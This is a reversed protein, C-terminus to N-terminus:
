KLSFRVRSLRAEFSTCGFTSGAVPLPTLQEIIEFRLAADSRRGGEREWVLDLFRFDTSGVALVLLATAAGGGCGGGVAM